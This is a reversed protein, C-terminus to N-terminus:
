VAMTNRATSPLTQKILSRLFFYVVSYHVALRAFFLRFGPRVFVRSLASFVDSSPFSILVDVVVNGAM